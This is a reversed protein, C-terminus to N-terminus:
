YKEWLTLPSGSVIKNLSMSMKGHTIQSEEGRVIALFDDESFGFIGVLDIVGQRDLEKHKMSMLNPRPYGESGHISVIQSYPLPVTDGPERFRQIEAEPPTVREVKLLEITIDVMEEMPPFEDYRKGAAGGDSCGHLMLLSVVGFVGFVSSLKM